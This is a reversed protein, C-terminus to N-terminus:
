AEASRPHVLLLAAPYTAVRLDAVAVATRETPQAPGNFFTPLGMQLPASRDRVRAKFAGAVINVIECFADALEEPPLDPSTPDTGLLAKALAQCGADDSALGIQIAGKPGVLALYAGRYAAPARDHRGTVALDGFGLATNAVEDFAAELDPLWSAWEAATM